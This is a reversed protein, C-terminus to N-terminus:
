EHKFDALSIQNQQLKDLKTSIDEIKSLQRNDPFQRKVQEHWWDRMQRIEKRKEPNGGFYDHCSPCLPAANDIDSSGGCEQPLIHHVQIGILQCRCCRFAAKEKVEKKVQESFDM